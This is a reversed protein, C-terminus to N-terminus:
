GAETVMQGALDNIVNWRRVRTPAELERQTAKVRPKNRALGSTNKQDFKPSRMRIAWPRLFM